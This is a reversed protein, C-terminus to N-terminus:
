NCDRYTAILDNIQSAEERTFMFSYSEGTKDVISFCAIDGVISTDVRAINLYEICTVKKYDDTLFVSYVENDAIILLQQNLYYDKFYQRGDTELIIEDILEQNNEVLEEGIAEEKGDQIIQENPIDEISEFSESKSVVPERKDEPKKGCGCILVTFGIVMIMMLKKM